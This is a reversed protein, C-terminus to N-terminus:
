RVVAAQRSAASRSIALQEMRSMQDPLTSLATLRDLLNLAKDLEASDQKQARCTDDGFKDRTANRTDLLEVLGRQNGSEIAAKVRKFVKEATFRDGRFIRAPKVTPSDWRIVTWGIPVAM